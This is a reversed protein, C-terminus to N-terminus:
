SKNILNSVLWTIRPQPTTKKALHHTKIEKKYKPMYTTERAVQHLEIGKRYKPMCTTEREATEQSDSSQPLPILSSVLLGTVSLVFCLLLMNWSNPWVPRFLYLIFYNLFNIIFHKRRMGSDRERVLNLNLAINNVKLKILFLMLIANSQIWRNWM